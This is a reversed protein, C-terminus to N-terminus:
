PALKRTRYYKQLVANTDRDAFRIVGALVSIENTAFPIWDVMNTSYEAVYINSLGSLEFQFGNTSIGDGPQQDVALQHKEPKLKVVWADRDGYNPSTKNGSPPSDSWGGILYGGDSCQIMWFPDDLGSGGMSNEWIKEGDADVRVAWFDNNGFWPSTKDGSPPSDSKGCFLGGGDATAVFARCDDLGTGGHSKQWQIAGTGDIRMIWYDNSGYSGTTRNGNRSASLGGVLLTGKTGERLGWVTEYDTGGYAQDWIKNGQSDVRLLWWDLSGYYAAAKDLGTGSGSWGALMYDGNSVPQIVELSNQGGIGSYSRDWLQNGEADIRVLWYDASSKLPATKTGSASSFSQGGLLFGGDPTSVIAELYDAGAGGYTKDWLKNGDQDTKVVWYDYGGRNPATKIPGTGSTSYGGLVMDGNTLIVMKSIREDGAGGYTQEWEKRGHKDLRIVWYDNLGYSPSTKNGSPPSASFAGLVFGKDSTEQFGFVGDRGTGGFSAQWEIDPPKFKATAYFASLALGLLPLVVRKM